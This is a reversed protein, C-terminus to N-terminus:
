LTRCRPKSITAAGCSACIAFSPTQMAGLNALIRGRLADAPVASQMTKMLALRLRSLVAYWGADSTVDAGGLGTEEAVERIVSGVFDVYGGAVDDPDPTGSPFYIMGAKATHAGMVGLLFAGDASRLAGQAFCNTAAPDPRDWDDWAMFSAYDTAFFDGTLKASSFAYGRLLLVKGNWIEPTLRRREAFHTDIEARREVTFPWSWPAYSFEADDVAIISIDTMPVEYLCGAEGRM